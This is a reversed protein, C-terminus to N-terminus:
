TCTIKITCSVSWKEAEMLREISAYTKGTNTEGVHLYFHRKMARQKKMNM